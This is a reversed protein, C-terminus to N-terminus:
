WCFDSPNLKTASFFEFVDIEFDIDCGECRTEVYLGVEPCENMLENAAACFKKVLEDRRESKRKKLEAEINEKLESLESTPLITVDYM